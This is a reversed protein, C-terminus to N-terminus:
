AMCTNKKRRAKSSKHLCLRRQSECEYAHSAKSLCSFNFKDYSLRLGVGVKNNATNESM